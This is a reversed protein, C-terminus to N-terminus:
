STQFLSPLTSEHISHSWPPVQTTQRFVEVCGTIQEVCTAVNRAKIGINRSINRPLRDLFRPVM